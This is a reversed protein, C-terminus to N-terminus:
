SAARAAAQRSQVAIRRWCWLKGADGAVIREGVEVRRRQVRQLLLHKGIAGDSVEDFLREVAEGPGAVEDVLRGPPLRKFNVGFGDNIAQQPVGAGSADGDLPHRLVVARRRVEFAQVTAIRGAREVDLHFGQVDHMRVLPVGLHQVLANKHAVTEVLLHRASFV